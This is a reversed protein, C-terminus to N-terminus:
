NGGMYQLPCLRSPHKKVDGVEAGSFKFTNQFRGVAAQLNFSSTSAQLVENIRWDHHLMARTELLTIFPDGCLMRFFLRSAVYTREWLRALTPCVLNSGPVTVRGNHPRHRTNEAIDKIASEIRDRTKKNRCGM